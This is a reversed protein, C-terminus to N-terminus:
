IWCSLGGSLYLKPTASQVCNLDTMLLETSWMMGMVVALLISCAVVCRVYMMQLAASVDMSFRLLVSVVFDVVSGSYM